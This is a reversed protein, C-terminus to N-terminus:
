REFVHWVFVGDLVTGTYHGATDEGTAFVHFTRTANSDTLQVLAWLCIKGNQMDVHKIKGGHPIRLIQNGHKVDLTYKYMRWKM